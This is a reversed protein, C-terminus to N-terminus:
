KQCSAVEEVAIGKAIHKGLALRTGRVKISLAGRNKRNLVKVMIGESLGLAQLRTIEVETFLNKIKYEKEKQAEFLTM